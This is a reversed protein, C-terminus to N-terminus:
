TRKVKATFMYGENRITRILDHGGGDWFFSSSFLDVLYSDNGLGGVLRDVGRGGDLTDAGLGGSLTDDGTGGLLTDAGMGGALSGTFADGAVVVGVTIPGVAPRAAVRSLLIGVRRRVRPAAQLLVDQLVRQLVDLFRVRGLFQAGAVGLGVPERKISAVVRGLALQQGLVARM